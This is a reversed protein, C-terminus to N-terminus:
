RYVSAISMDKRSVASIKGPSSASRVRLEPLRAEVRARLVFVALGIGLAAAILRRRMAGRFLLSRGRRVGLLLWAAHLAGPERGRDLCRALLAFRCLRNRHAHAGYPRGHPDDVPVVLGVRLHHAFVAAFDEASADRPDLVVDQGAALAARWVQLLQLPLSELGPRLLLVELVACPRQLVPAPLLQHRFPM